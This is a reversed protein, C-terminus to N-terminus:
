QCQRENSSCGYRYLEHSVEINFVLNSIVLAIYKTLVLNAIIFKSLNVNSMELIVLRYYVWTITASRWNM